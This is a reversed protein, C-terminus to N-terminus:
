PLTLTLAIQEVKKARQTAEERGKKKKTKKNEEKRRDKSRM